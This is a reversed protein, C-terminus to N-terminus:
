TAFHLVLSSQSEDAINSTGVRISTHLPTCRPVLGIVGKPRRM